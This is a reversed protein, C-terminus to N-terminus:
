FPLNDESEGAAPGDTEVTEGPDPPTTAESAAKMAQWEKSAQILEFVWVPANSPIEAGEEFSFWKSPNEQKPVAMGKPIAMVAGVNSYTKGKDTKHIVQIQCPKGLIARLDFGVLEESTFARGRWAELHHRLNSKEHLSLTYRQSIARPLDVTKGDQELQIRHEPLEWMIIIKHVDKDYLKDHVTGLDYVAFCTGITVGEPIPKSDGQAKATLAM